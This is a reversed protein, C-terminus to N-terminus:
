VSGTGKTTDILGADAAARALRMLWVLVGLGISLAGLVFGAALVLVVALATM